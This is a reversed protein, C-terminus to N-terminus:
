NYEGHSTSPSAQQKANGDGNVLVISNLNLQQTRGLFMIDSILKQAIYKQTVDLERMQIKMNTAFASCEDEIEAPSQYNFVHTDVTESQDERTISTEKKISKKKKKPPRSPPSAPEDDSASDYTIMTSEFASTDVEDYEPDGEPDPNPEAKCIKVPTKTVASSGPRPTDPLFSMFDYYWLTPTYVEDPSSNRKLSEQVKKQERRYSNRFCDLKKKMCHITAGPDIEKYKLLLAQDAKRKLDKRMYIPSQNDWLCPYSKYIELFEMYFQKQKSHSVSVMTFSTLKHKNNQSIRARPERRSHRSVLSGVHQVTPRRALRAPRPRPPTTGGTPYSAIGSSHPSEPIMPPPRALDSICRCKNENQGAAIQAGLLDESTLSARHLTAENYPEM